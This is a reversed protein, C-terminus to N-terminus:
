TPQFLINFHREDKCLSYKYISVDNPEAEKKSYEIRCLSLTMKISLFSHIHSSNSMPNYCIAKRQKTTSFHDTKYNAENQNMFPFPIICEERKNSKLLKM